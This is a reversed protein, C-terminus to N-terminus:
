SSLISCQSLHSTSIVPSLSLHDTDLPDMWFETHTVHDVFYYACDPGELQLFLEVDDSLSIDKEFLLNEIRKAWYSIREM